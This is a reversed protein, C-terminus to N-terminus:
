GINPSIELYEACKEPTNKRLNKSTAIRQRFPAVAHIDGLM